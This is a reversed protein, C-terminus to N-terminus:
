GEDLPSELQKSLLLGVTRQQARHRQDQASRKPVPRLYSVSIRYCRVLAPHRSDSAGYPNPNMALANRRGQISPSRSNKSIFSRGRM